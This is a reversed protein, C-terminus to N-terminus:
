IKFNPFNFKNYWLVSNAESFFCNIFSYFIHEMTKRHLTKKFRMLYAIIIINYLVASRGGGRGDRGTKFMREGSIDDRQSKGPM